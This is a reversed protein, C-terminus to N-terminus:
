SPALVGLKGDGEPLALLRLVQPPGALTGGLTALLAQVGEGAVHAATAAADTWQEVMVFRTPEDGTRHLAYRECGPEGHSARVAARLAEEVADEQGSAPQFIAVTIMPGDAMNDGGTM